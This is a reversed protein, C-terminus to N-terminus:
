EYSARQLDAPVGAYVFFVLDRASKISLLGSVYHDVLWFVEPFGFCRITLGVFAYVLSDRWYLGLDSTSCDNEEIVIVVM